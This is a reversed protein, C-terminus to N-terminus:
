WSFCTVVTTARLYRTRFLDRIDGLRTENGTKTEIELREEPLEKGNVRAIKRYLKEAEEMKGKVLLWRLSEPYLSLLCGSAHILIQDM